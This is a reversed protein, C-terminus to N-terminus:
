KLLEMVKKYNGHQGAFALEYPTRGFSEKTEKRAGNELLLQVMEADGKFASLHLPTSEYKNQDNVNAGNKLLIKAIALQGNDAAVHLPTFGIENKINIKDPNKLKLNFSMFGFIKLKTYEPFRNPEGYKALFHLFTNQYQDSYELNATVKLTLDEPNEQQAMKVELSSLSEKCTKNELKLDDIQDKLENINDNRTELGRVLIHNQRKLDDKESRCQDLKSEIIQNSEKLDNIKSELNISCDKLSQLSEKLDQNEQKLDKIEFAQKSKIKHTNTLDQVLSQKQLKLDEIEAKQKEILDNQNDITKFLTQNQFKINEMTLKQDKQELELIKVKQEYITIQAKALEEAKSLKEMNEQPMELCLYSKKM